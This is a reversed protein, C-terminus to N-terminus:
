MLERVVLMCHMIVPDTSNEAQRGEREGGRLGGRWDEVGREQGGRGDQARDEGTSGKGEKKKGERGRNREERM